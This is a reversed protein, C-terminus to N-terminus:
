VSNGLCSEDNFLNILCNGAPIDTRLMLGSVTEPLTRCGKESPTDISYSFIGCVKNAYFDITVANVITSVSGLALFRSTLIKLIIINRTIITISPILPTAVRQVTATQSHCTTPLSPARKYVKAIAM